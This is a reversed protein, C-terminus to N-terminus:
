TDALPMLLTRLRVQMVQRNGEAAERFSLRLEFESATKLHRGEPDRSGFGSGTTV